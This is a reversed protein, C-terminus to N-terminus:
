TGTRFEGSKGQQWVHQFVEKAAMAKDQETFPPEPLAEYLYDM